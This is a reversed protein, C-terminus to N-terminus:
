EKPTIYKIIKAPNGGVVANDPIDKCVVSGAAVVVNNGITIGPLIVSSGGIWVDNGITVPKGLEAGRREIPDLPHTAGYIQVNPGFMCYDGITIPCIDLIICNFNAYFDKGVSINYGYDCYFGQEIYAGESRGLLQSLIEKREEKSEPELNNFRYLLKRARLRDNTLEQDFSIYPEGAIMKSKESM